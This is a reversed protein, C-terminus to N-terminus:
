RDPRPPADVRASPPPAPPTRARQGNLWAELDRSRVSGVLREDDLVLAAGGPGLEDIVHDLRDAVQVTRIEELSVMADRVPRLPDEGGIKRASGFSIMGELRGRADVVPFSEGEHGRLFRDLAESLSMDAPVTRPAAEMADRATGGTLADRVALRRESSRSASIMWWAVLFGFIAPPGWPGGRLFLLGSVIAIAIGIALGVGAAVRTATRRDGTLKWVAALFARGGDLPFGPLANLAALLANIFGLWHFTQSLAPSPGSLAVGVLWFVAGLALSSLPGAASVLFEGGAGRKEARTETFGGWFVLTIGGVEIGLARATAAHALEHILVSAFFMAASFVALAIAARDGFVAGGGRVDLYRTYTYLLAIWIWSSDLRIPVGGISGIRWGRGGV